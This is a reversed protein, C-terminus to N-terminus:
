TIWYRKCKECVYIVKMSEPHRYYKIIDNQCGSHSPMKKEIRPYTHPDTIMAAVRSMINDKSNYTYEFVVDTSIPTTVNCRDCKTYIRKKITVYELYQGCTECFKTSM